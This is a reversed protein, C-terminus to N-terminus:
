TNGGGEGRGEGEGREKERNEGRRRGGIEWQAQINMPGKWM